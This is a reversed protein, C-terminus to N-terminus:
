GFAGEPLISGLQIRDGLLAGEFRAAYEGWAIGQQYRIAAEHQRRWLDDDTLLAVAAEAFREPLWRKAPGDLAGPPQGPASSRLESGRGHVDSQPGRDLTSRRIMVGGSRWAGVGQPLVPM